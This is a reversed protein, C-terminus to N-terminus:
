TLRTHQDWLHYISPLLWACSPPAWGSQLYAHARFQVADQLNVYFWAGPTGEPLLNHLCGASKAKLGAVCLLCNCFQKLLTQTVPKSM